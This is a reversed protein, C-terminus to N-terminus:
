PQGVGEVQDDARTKQAEAEEAEDLRAVAPQMVYGDVAGDAARGSQALGGYRVITVGAKRRPGAERRRKARFRSGASVQRSRITADFPRPDVVPRSLSEESTM